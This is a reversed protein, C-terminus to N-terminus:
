HKLRRAVERSTDRRKIQERKDYRKRGRGIGIEVKVLRGTLMLATPVVSLGARKQEVLHDLQRRHLLLKRQRTPDLDAKNGAHAYPTVHANVLYAEGGNLIVFSGKLSASGTKISKTESGSLAIGAVIRETIDYDYTARRNKALLRM